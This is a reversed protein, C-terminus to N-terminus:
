INFIVSFVSGVNKESKVTLEANNLEAYSKVLSLGLGIGEYSRTYGQEEQTFPDFIQTIYESSIGIGTDIIDVQLDGYENTFPKITISGKETYKIANDILNIFMQGVSYQDCVVRSPTSSSVLELKIGKSLASNSLEKIIPWLVDDELDLETLKIEYKQNQNKSVNLILDITRTLRNGGREIYEFTEAMEQSLQDKLESKILSSFSLISNLPTRIEHSIQALFDSKIRVAEEAEQKAKLIEDEYKKREIVRSIQAAVLEMVEKNELSYQNGFYDKMIIAGIINNQIKLPIGIITRPKIAYKLFTSNELLFEINLEDLLVPIKNNQVYRFEEILNPTEDFEYESQIFPFEIHQNTSNILCVAFNSIPMLQTVSKYISAYFEVDLPSSNVLNSIELLTSQLLENKLRGTINVATTIRLKNGEDDNVKLNTTQIYFYTGNKHKVKEEAKLINTGNFIKLHNEDVVPKSDDSLLSSYNLGILEEKEYGFMDVFIKNLEIIKGEYNVICIANQTDNFYSKFLNIYKGQPIDTLSSESYSQKNNEFM